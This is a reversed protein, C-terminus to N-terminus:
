WSYIIKYLALIEPVKQMNASPLRKNDDPENEVTHRTTRELILDEFDLPKNSEHSYAQLDLTMAQILPDKSMKSEADNNNHGMALQLLLLSPGFVHGAIHCTNTSLFFLFAAIRAGGYLGLLCTSHLGNWGVIKAVM